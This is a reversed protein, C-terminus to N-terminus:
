STPGERLGELFGRYHVRMGPSRPVYREFVRTCRLVDETDPPLGERKLAVIMHALGVACQCELDGCADSLWSRLLPLLRDSSATFESLVWIADSWPPKNAAIVETLLDEFAPAGIKILCRGAIDSSAANPHRLWGILTKSVETSYRPDSLIRRCELSIRFCESDNEM